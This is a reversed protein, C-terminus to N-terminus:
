ESGQEQMAEDEVGGPKGEKEPIELLGGWIKLYPKLKVLSVHLQKRGCRGGKQSAEDEDIVWLSEDVSVKGRLNGEFLLKDGKIGLRIRSQKIECEVEGSEVKAPLPVFLDLAKETEIWTVNTGQYAGKGAVRQDRRQV